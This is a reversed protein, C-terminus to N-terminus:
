LIGLIEKAKAKCKEAYENYEAFEKPKTDRQRLISLEASLSYKKRIYSDVLEGYNFSKLYKKQEEQSKAIEESTMERYIGNDYIKSM